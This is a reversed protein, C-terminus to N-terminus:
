CGMVKDGVGFHHEIGEGLGYGYPRHRRNWGRSHGEHMHGHRYRYWMWRRGNNGSQFVHFVNREHAHQERLCEGIDGLPQVAGEPALHAEDHVTASDHSEHDEVGQEGVALAGLVDVVDVMGKYGLIAHKTKGICLLLESCTNPFGSALEIRAHIPRVSM